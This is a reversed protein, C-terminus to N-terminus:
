ALINILPIKSLASGLSVLAQEQTLQQQEASAVAAIDAGTTNGLQGAITTLNSNDVAVIGAASSSVAGITARCQAIQTIAAQLQPLTAAVATQDGSNLANELSTLAGIAGSTQDGLIAQGSFTLQLASGDSLQAFNSGADGAYNGTAGFPQTLVQNGAFIFSGGYQVNGAAIVQAILGAVTQGLTTMQAGSITGNSGETAQQVATELANGANSLANDAVALSSQAATALAVDNTLASQQQALAQGEAFAAPNDSPKLVSKGTALESQTQVLDSGVSDLATALGGFLTLDAITM